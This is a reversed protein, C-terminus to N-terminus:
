VQLLFPNPLAGFHRWTIESMTWVDEETYGQFLPTSM